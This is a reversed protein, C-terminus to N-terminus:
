EITLLTIDRMNEPDTQCIQKEVTLIKRLWDERAEKLYPGPIPNISVESELNREYLQVGGGRRRCYRRSRNEELDLEKSFDLLPQIWQKEEDNKIMATLSKHESLLTCVWCGVHSGGCSPTSTDVVLLCENDASAGRYIAFLDKNSYKWPNKWQM